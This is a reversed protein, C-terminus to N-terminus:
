ELSIILLYINVHTSDSFLEIRIMPARANSESESEPPQFKDSLTDNGFKEAIKGNTYSRALTWEIQLYKAIKQLESIMPDEARFQM